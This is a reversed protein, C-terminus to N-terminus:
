AVERQFSRTSEGRWPTLTVQRAGELGDSDHTAMLLAGGAELHEEVIRDFLSQFTEDLGRTPEDFVWLLSPKLLCCALYVRQKQGASLLAYPMSRLGGLHWKEMASQFVVDPTNWLRVWFGLASEVSLSGDFPSHVGMYYASCRLELHGSHIPHLGVIAELLTTKGVGNGGRMEIAQGADVTLSLPDFLCLGERSLTLDTLTLLPQM